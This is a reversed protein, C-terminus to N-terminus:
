ANSGQHTTTMQQAQQEYYRARREADAPSEYPNSRASEAAAMWDAPTPARNRFIDLQQSKM